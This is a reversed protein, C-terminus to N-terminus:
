KYIADVNEKGSLLTHFMMETGYRFPSIWGFFKLLFNNTNMNAIIGSGFVFVIVSMQSIM